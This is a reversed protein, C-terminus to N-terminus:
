RNHCTNSSLDAYRDGRVVRCPEILKRFKERIATEYSSLSYDDPVNHNDAIMDAVIFSMM